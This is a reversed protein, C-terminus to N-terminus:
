SDTAAATNGHRRVVPWFGPVRRRYSEYRDGFRGILDREEERALRRYMIVLVPYMLLTPITPWMILFATATLILGAYQPHRMRAYLGTTVLGGRHRYIARWGWVILVAAVILLLSSLGMVLGVAAELPLIGFRALAYAWLHSEFMGFSLPSLGLLPAVAYITLPVGFMEAFLAILFGWFVGANRWEYRRRPRVFGLAFLGFLVTWLLATRWHGYWEAHPINPTAPAAVLISEM